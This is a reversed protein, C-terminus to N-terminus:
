AAIIENFDAKEFADVAAQDVTRMILMYKM